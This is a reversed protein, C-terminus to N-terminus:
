SSPTSVRIHFSSLRTFFNFTNQRKNKERMDSDITENIIMLNMNIKLTKHFQPIDCRSLHLAWFTLKVKEKSIHTCAQEPERFLSFRSINPLIKLLSPYGHPSMMERLSRFSSRVQSHWSSFCSLGLSQGLKPIHSFPYSSISWHINHHCIWMFGPFSGWSQYEYFFKSQVLPKTESYPSEHANPSFNIHSECFQGLKPTHLLIQIFSPHQKLLPLPFPFSQTFLIAGTPKNKKWKGGTLYYPTGKKM